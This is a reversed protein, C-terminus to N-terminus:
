GPQTRIEVEGTRELTGSRARTGVIASGTQRANLASAPSITISSPM